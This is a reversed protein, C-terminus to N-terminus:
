VRQGALAGEYISDHLRRPSVCDGVMQAPVEDALSNALETKSVMGAALVVAVANIELRENSPSSWITLGETRIEELTAFHFFSARPHTLVRERLVMGPRAGIDAALSDTPRIGCRLCGQCPSPRGRGGCELRRWDCFAPQHFALFDSCQSCAICHRISGERGQELKLVFESDAHFARTLAVFDAAGGELIAEATEPSNLRGAVSVPISVANKIARGLEVNCGHETEMPPIAAWVTEYIGATVDLLAVGAQELRQAFPVTEELTLGGVIQGEACFRYLIPFDPDTAKRVADVVGLPFRMRNELSGGYDDTRKDSFPSLFANVLYGSAGHIQVADFGAERCRSAAKAFREIVQAIEALSLERPMDGGTLECPIPPPAVPQRGSIEINTQRGSHCLELSVLSDHMHAAEALRRLGPILSDGHAGLQWRRGKGVNDIYTAEMLILAAGSGHEPRSTSSTASLSVVM